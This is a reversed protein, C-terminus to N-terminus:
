AAAAATKLSMIGFDQKTTAYRHIYQPKLMGFIRGYAIGPRNGYDTRDSEGWYANGITAYGLAQAGLMLAQAGEVTGSAGWKSGSELDLTSFIKNHDYLVVGEIVKKANNFLPNKSGRVHAEATLTKYTNDQSLDRMQETSLVLVYYERGGSRIAKIRQRKAKTRMQVVLDWTMKDNATLSAESSASGAYVIRESSAAVVSSAFALKQFATDVRAAGGVTLGYSRGSATLFMLEDTRDGQWHGLQSRANSRFRIVTRQEDMKGRSKVGHRLQDVIIEQADQEMAEENGELMGDGATGDKALDSVLQMVARDGRETQTLETIRNVPTSVDNTNAGIFGNAMWFNADRGAITVKVAWVKKQAASLAGFATEAM